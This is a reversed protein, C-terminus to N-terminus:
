ESLILRTIVYTNTGDLLYAVFIEGYNGFFVYYDNYCKKSDYSSELNENIYAVDEDIIKYVMEKTINLKNMLEVSSIMKNDKKSYIYVEPEIKTRELSCVQVKNRIASVSIYDDNEYLYYQSEIRVSHKYIDQKDLCSLTNVTSNASLLYYKQTNENISNIAEKIEKNRTDFDIDYFGIEYDIPCNDESVCLQVVRNNELKYDAIDSRKNKFLLFIVVGLIIVFGIIIYKIYKRM